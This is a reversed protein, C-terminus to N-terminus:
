DEEEPEDPFVLPRKCGPCQGPQGAKRSAYRLKRSCRTCRMHFYEEASKGAARESTRTRAVYLIVALLVTLECLIPALLRTFPSPLGGSQAVPQGTPVLRQQPGCLLCGEELLRADYPREKGCQPCHM